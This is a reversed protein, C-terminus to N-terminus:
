KEDEVMNHVVDWISQLALIAIDSKHGNIADGLKIAVETVEDWNVTQICKQSFLPEFHNQLKQKNMM